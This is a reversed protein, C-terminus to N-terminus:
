EGVSPAIPLRIKPLSLRKPFLGRIEPVLFIRDHVMEDVLIRLHKPEWSVPLGSFRGDGSHTIVHLHGKKTGYFGHVLGNRIEAHEKLTDLIKRLRRNQESSLFQKGLQRLLTIKNSISMPIICSRHQLRTMKFLDALLMGLFHETQAASIVVRGLWEALEKVFDPNPQKQPKIKPM